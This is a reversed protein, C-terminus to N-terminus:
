KTDLLIKLKELIDETFPGDIEGNEVREFYTLETENKSVPKFTYRCHYNGDKLSFTFLKDKEFESIVYESWIGNKGCNRYITGLKTPSENREEKVISPVWLPTNSPDLLWLFLEHIPRNIRISLTNKKM